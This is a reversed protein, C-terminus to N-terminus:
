AYLRWSAAPRGAKKMKPREGHFDTVGQFRETRPVAVVLKDATLAADVDDVLLLLPELRALALRAGARPRGDVRGDNNQRQRPRLRRPIRNEPAQAKLRAMRREPKAVRPDASTRPRGEVPAGSGGPSERRMGPRGGTWSGGPVRTKPGFPGTSGSDKPGARGRPSAGRLAGRSLSAFGSGAFGASDLNLGRGTTRSPACRALTRSSNNLRRAAVASASSPLPIAPAISRTQSREPDSVASRKIARAM